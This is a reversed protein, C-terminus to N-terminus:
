SFTIGNSSVVLWKAGRAELTLGAGLFAAFTALDTAAAGSGFLGTATLTHANATNSIISIRLGDDVVATPAALTDALVGAKTIIYDAATHSNIAGNTTLAVRGVTSSGAFSSEWNGAVLCYYTTIIGVGQSVGTATAIGRVTDTGAGFVQIPAAGQNDITVIQGVTAAPLRVSDGLTASVSIRNFAATLALAAAQTGGAHATLATAVGTVSGGNNFQIASPNFIALVQMKTDGIATTSPAGIIQMQAGGNATSGYWLSTTSDKVMGINTGILALAWAELLTVKFIFGPTIRWAQILSGATSSNAAADTLIFAAQIFATGCEVLQGASNITNPAGAFSANSAAEQVYPSPLLGIRFSELDWPSIPEFKGVSM